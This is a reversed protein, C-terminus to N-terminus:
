NSFYNAVLLKFWFRYNKSHIRKRIDEIKVETILLQKHKMLEVNKEEINELESTVSELEQELKTTEIRNEEVMRYFQKLM